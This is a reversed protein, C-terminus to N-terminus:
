WFSGLFQVHDFWSAMEVCPHEKEELESLYTRHSEPIVEQRLGKRVSKVSKWLVRCVHTELSM